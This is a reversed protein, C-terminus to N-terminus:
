QLIEFDKDEHKDIWRWYKTKESEVLLGRFGKRIIVWKDGHEKIRNKGKLSKGKVTIINHFTM